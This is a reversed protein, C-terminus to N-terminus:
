LGTTLLPPKTTANTVVPMMAASSVFALFSTYMVHPALSAVSRMLTPRSPASEFSALSWGETLSSPYTTAKSDIAYL